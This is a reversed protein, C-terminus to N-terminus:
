VRGYITIVEDGCVEGLLVLANPASLPPAVRSIHRVLHRLESEGGQEGWPVSRALLAVICPHAHFREMAEVRHSWVFAAEEESLLRLSDEKLMRKFRNKVEPDIDLSGPFPTNRKKHQKLLAKKEEASLAAGLRDYTDQEVEPPSNGQETGFEEHDLGLARKFSSVKADLEAAKAAHAALLVKSAEKEPSGTPLKEMERTEQSLKNEADRAELNADQLVLKEFRTKVTDEDLSDLNREELQSDCL